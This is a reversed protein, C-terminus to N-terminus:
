FRRETIQTNYGDVQSQKFAQKIDYSHSGRSNQSYNFSASCNTAM